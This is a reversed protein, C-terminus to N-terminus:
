KVYIKRGSATVYIGRTPYVVRRGNLDYLTNDNLMAPALTDIGTTEGFNLEFKAVGSATTEYYAKNCPITTGSRMKYLATVGEVTAIGYVAETSTLNKTETLTTGKFGEAKAPVVTTPESLLIKMTVTEGATGQLFAPTNSPLNIVDGDALIEELTAQSSNEATVVYAKFTAPLSIPFVYNVSAWGGEGIVTTLEDVVEIQWYSAKTGTANNWTAVNLGEVNDPYKNAYDQNGRGYDVAHLYPTFDAYANENSTFSYNGGNEYWSVNVGTKSMEVTKDAGTGIADVCYGQSTLCTNTSGYLGPMEAIKWIYSAQKGVESADTPDWTYLYAKGEEVFGTFGSESSIGSKLYKNNNCNKLRFYCTGNLADAVTYVREGFTVEITIDNQFFSGPVTMNGESDASIVQTQSGCTVTASAYYGANPTVKLVYDDGCVPATTVATVSGKTNDYNVTVTPPVIEIMVDLISGGYDKFTGNFNSNQDGAPDISCWDCKFRMRHTGLTSPCRFAPCTMHNRNNGTITQGLSNWGSEDSSGETYFSYAMLDGTPAHTSSNVGATFGDDETDIYVYQHIWSGGRTFEVQLTEGAKARLTVTEHKDRYPTDETTEVTQDGFAPSKLVVQTLKRDGKTYSSEQADAGVSYDQATAISSVGSVCLALLFM